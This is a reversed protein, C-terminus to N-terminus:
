NQFIKILGMGLNLFIRLRTLFLSFVKGQYLDFMYKDFGLDMFEMIFAIKGHNRAIFLKENNFTHMNNQYTSRFISTVEFAGYYRPYYLYDPDLKNFTENMNIEKLINKQERIGDLTASDDYYQILKAGYAKKEHPDDFDLGNLKYVTGFGGSGLKNNSKKVDLVLNKLNHCYPYYFNTTKDYEEEGEQQSEAQKKEQSYKTFLDSYYGIKPKLDDLLNASQNTLGISFLIIFTKIKSM